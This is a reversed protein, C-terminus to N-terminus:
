ICFCSCHAPGPAESGLGSVMGFRFCGTQPHRASPVAPGAHSRCLPQPSGHISSAGYGLLDPSRPLPHLEPCFSDPLFRYSPLSARSKGTFHTYFCNLVYRSCPTALGTKINCPLCTHLSWAYETGAKTRHAPSFRCRGPCTSNKSPYHYMIHPFNQIKKYLAPVNRTHPGPFGTKNPRGQSHCAYEKKCYHATGGIRSHM